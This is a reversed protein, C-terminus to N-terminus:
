QAELYSKLLDRTKTTETVIDVNNSQMYSSYVYEVSLYREYGALRLQDLVQGFNITGDSLPTQLFGPKAQRVHVHATYACLPDVDAQSYGQCVFHAYDLVLGLGPAGQVLALASQPSEFCSGVHAETVLAVGAEGAIPLFDNFVEVALSRADATSQGPYIIGPLVTASLIGAEHCFAMMRRYLDKNHARVQPDPDNISPRFAVGSFGWHLNPVTLGLARVRRVDSVEGAVGEASPVGVLDMAEFGLARAVGAAEELTCAAFSVQAVALKM